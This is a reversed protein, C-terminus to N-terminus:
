LVILRVFFRIFQTALVLVGFRLGCLRHLEVVTCGLGAGWHRSRVTIRQGIFHDVVQSTSRIRNRSQKAIRVHKLGHMERYYNRWDTAHRM